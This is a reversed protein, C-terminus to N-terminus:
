AGHMSASRTAEAARRGEQSPLLPDGVAAPPPGRRDRSSLWDKDKQWEDKLAQVHPSRPMDAAAGSLCAFTALAYLALVGGVIWWRGPTGWGAAILSAGVLTVLSIALVLGVLALMLRRRAIGRLDRGAAAALQGYAEVHRIFAPGLQRLHIM